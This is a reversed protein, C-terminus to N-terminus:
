VFCNDGTWGALEQIALTEERKGPTMWGCKVPVYATYDPEDAFPERNFLLRVFRQTRWRKGRTDLLPGDDDVVCNHRFIVDPWGDAAEVSWGHLAGDEARTTLISKRGATLERVLKIAHWTSRWDDGDDLHFHIGEDGVALEYLDFDDARIELAPCASNEPIVRLRRATTRGQPEREETINRWGIKRRLMELTVLDRSDIVVPMYLELILAASNTDTGDPRRNPNLRHKNTGM